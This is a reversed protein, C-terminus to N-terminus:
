KRDEQCAGNNWSTVGANQAKCTNSYTKKDCGCVPNYEESCMADKNIKSEDICNESKSSCGFIAVFSAFLLLNKM